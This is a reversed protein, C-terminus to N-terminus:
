ETVAYRGRLCVVPQKRLVPPILDLVQSFPLIHDQPQATILVLLGALPLM